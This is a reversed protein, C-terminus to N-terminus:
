KKKKDVVEEGSLDDTSRNENFNQVMFAKSTLSGAKANRGAKKTEEIKKTKESASVTKTKEEINRTSVQAMQSLSDAKVGKKEREKAQKERNKQIMEDLPIDDIKKNVFYQQVSRVVASAVWYLGIGSPMTFCMVVSFLPMVKNMMKMQMAMPDNPDGSGQQTPILKMNIYQTIGALVPIIIALVILSVAGAKLATQLLNMPTEGINIGLFSNVGTVNKHTQAITDSMNPLKDSLKEWTSVQFKNLADILINKQTYDFKKPDMMVPKNKGISQMVKIAKDNSAIKNVLPMYALAIKDVYAPINRIVAFLGFIIPMQILMTSCGGVPSTGYKQYIAQMEEQQKVMSAQDKKGKYKKQVKQIEPNMVASLKQFKQQKITLPLMFMYIVITFIIISWGINEVGFHSLFNYIGNMLKGLIWAIQGVIFTHSQTLLIGAM